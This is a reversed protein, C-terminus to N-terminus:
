SDQASDNEYNLKFFKLPNSLGCFVEDSTILNFEVFGSFKIDVFQNILLLFNTYVTDSYQLIVTISLDNVSHLPCTIALNHNAPKSDM